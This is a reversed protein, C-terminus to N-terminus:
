KLRTIQKFIQFIVITGFLISSGACWLDNNGDGQQQQQKQEVKFIKMKTIRVTIRVKRVCFDKQRMDFSEYFLEVSAM